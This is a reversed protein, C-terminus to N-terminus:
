YYHQRLDCLPFWNISSKQVCILQESLLQLPHLLHYVRVLLAVPSGLDHLIAKPNRLFYREVSSFRLLFSTLRKKSLRQLRKSSNRFKTVVLLTFVLISYAVWAELLANTCYHLNLTPIPLRNRAICNYFCEASELWFTDKWRENM